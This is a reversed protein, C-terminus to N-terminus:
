AAGEDQEEDVVAYPPDVVVLVPCAAGRLVASVTSGLAAPLVRGRGRRGMVILDAGLRQAAALIEHSPEGVVCEAHVRDLALTADLLGDLWGRARDVADRQLEASAAGPGEEGLTATVLAARAAAAQAIAGMPVVHLATVRADFREAVERGWELVLPTLDVDDVPILVHEPACESVGIGVLVPVPSFRVLREATSGVRSWLGPRTGHPGIAVLDAGLEEAAEALESAPRGARVLVRVRPAGIREAADRLRAETRERAVEVLATREPVVGRLFESPEEVDAVGVLVLEAAPALATAVWRATAVAPASCDMGIVVRELQM